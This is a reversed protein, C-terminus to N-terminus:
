RPINEDLILIEERCRKQDQQAQRKLREAQDKIARLGEFFGVGAGSRFALGGPSQAPYWDAAFFSIDRDLTIFLPTLAGGVRVCSPRLDPFVPCLILQRAKYLLPSSQLKSEQMDAPFVSRAKKVNDIVLDAAAELAILFAYADYATRRLDINLTTDIQKQATVIQRNAAEVERNAARITAWITGVAALIALLGAILTQWYGVFQWLSSEPHWDPIMRDEL